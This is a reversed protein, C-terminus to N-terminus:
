ADIPKGGRTLGPQLGSVAGKRAKYANLRSQADTLGAVKLKERDNAAISVWAAAKEAAERRPDKGGRLFVFREPEDNAGMELIFDLEAPTHQTLPKGFPGGAAHSGLIRSAM